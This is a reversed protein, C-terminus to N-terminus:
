TLLEILKNEFVDIPRAVIAQDNLIIIPREIISPHQNMAEIWADDSMTKSAYYEQFVKDKKRLINQASANM